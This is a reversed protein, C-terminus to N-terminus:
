INSTEGIAFLVIFRSWQASGNLYVGYKLAYCMLSQRYKMDQTVRAMPSKCEREIISTRALSVIVSKHLDKM